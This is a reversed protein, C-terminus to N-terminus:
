RRTSTKPHRQPWRRSRAAGRAPAACSRSGGSARCSRGRGSSCPRNGWLGTWPQPILQPILAEAPALARAVAPAAVPTRRSARACGDAPPMGWSAPRTWCGGRSRPQWRGAQRRASPESRRPWAALPAERAAATAVPPGSRRPLPRRRRRRRRARSSALCLARRLSGPRRSGATCPCAAVQRPGGRALCPGRRRSTRREDAPCAILPSPEHACVVCQASLARAAPGDATSLANGADRSRARWQWQIFRSPAEQLHREDLTITPPLPPAQLPAGTRPPRPAGPGGRGCCPMSGCAHKLSWAAMDGSTIMARGPMSIHLGEVARPCRPLSEHGCVLAYLMRIQLSTGPPRRAWAYNRSSHPAHKAVRMAHASRSPPCSLM